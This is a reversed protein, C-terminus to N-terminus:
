RIIPFTYSLCLDCYYVSFLTTSVLSRSPPPYFGWLWARTPDLRRLSYVIKGTKSSRSSTIETGPNNHGALAMYIPRFARLLCHDRECSSQLYIDGHEWAYKKCSVNPSLFPISPAPCPSNELKITCVMASYLRSRNVRAAGFIGNQLKVLCWRVNKTLYSSQQYFCNNWKKFTFNM